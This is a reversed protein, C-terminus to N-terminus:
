CCLHMIIVQCCLLDFWWRSVFWWSVKTAGNCKWCCCCEIFYFSINPFSHKLLFFLTHFFFRFRLTVLQSENFRHMIGITGNARPMKVDVAYFIYQMSLLLLPTLPRFEFYFFISFLICLIFALVSRPFLCQIFPSFPIFNNIHQMKYQSWCQDLSNSVTSEAFLNLLFFFVTIKRQVWQARHIHTNNVRRCLCNMHFRFPSLFIVSFLPRKLHM